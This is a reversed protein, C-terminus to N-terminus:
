PVLASPVDDELEVVFPLAALAEDDAAVGQRRLASCMAEWRPEERLYEDVERLEDDFILERVDQVVQERRSGRPVSVTMGGSAETTVRRGDDLDVFHVVDLVVGPDDEVFERVVENGAEDATVV